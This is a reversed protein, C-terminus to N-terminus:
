PNEPLEVTTSDTPSEVKARKLIGIENGSAIPQEHTTLDYLDSEGNNILVNNGPSSATGMDPQADAILVVGYRINGEIRNHQLVPRSTHSIVIGDKNATIQNDILLPAANDSIAIGFGTNEFLNGRIEGQAAKAVSLGNAQNQTFVNGTIKPSASGTVFVGERSCNIFTNNAIIPNGSEIWVGTGRLNPNTVTIGKIESDKEALLTTNQSAFTRSLYANGGRILVNQGKTSENGQLIVRPKLLLPFKEGSETSYTGPALQITTGAQSQELAYAITRYPTAKTTGARDGDTGVAPNVYVIATNESNESVQNSSVANDFWTPLAMVGGMGLLLTLRRIRLVKNNM